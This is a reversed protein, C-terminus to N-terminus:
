DKAVDRQKLKSLSATLIKFKTCKLVMIVQSNFQMYMVNACNKSYTKNNEWGHCSRTMIGYSLNSVVDVPAIKKKKRFLM